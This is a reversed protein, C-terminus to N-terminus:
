FQPLASCKRFKKLNAPHVKQNCKIKSMSAEKGSVFHCPCVFLNEAYIATQLVPAAWQLFASSKTAMMTIAKRSHPTWSTQYSFGLMLRLQRQLLSIRKDVRATKWVKGTAMSLAGASELCHCLILCYSGSKLHRINKNNQCFASFFPLRFTHSKWLSGATPVFRGSTPVFPLCRFDREATM